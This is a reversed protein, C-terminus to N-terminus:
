STVKNAYIRMREDESWLYIDTCPAHSAIHVAQKLQPEFFKSVGIAVIQESKYHIIDQAPNHRLLTAGPIDPAEQADNLFLYLQNPQLAPLSLDCFSLIEQVYSEIDKPNGELSIGICECTDADTYRGDREKLLKRSAPTINKRDWQTHIFQSTAIGYDPVFQTTNKDYFLSFSQVTAGEKRLFDVAKTITQGQGIIDEVVLLKKNKLEVPTLMVPIKDMRGCQIFAIPTEIMQAVMVAPVVGSRAIGIVYDFRQGRLAEEFSKVVQYATEYTIHHIHGPKPVHQIGAPM